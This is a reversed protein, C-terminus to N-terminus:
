PPYRAHSFRSFQKRVACSSCSDTRKYANRQNVFKGLISFLASANCTPSPITWGPPAADLSVFTLFCASTSLFYHLRIHKCRCVNRSKVRLLIGAIHVPLQTCCVLAHVQGSLRCMQLVSRNDCVYKLMSANRRKHKSRAPSLGRIASSKLLIYEVSRGM